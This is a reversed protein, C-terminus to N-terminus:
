FYVQEHIIKYNHPNFELLHFFGDWFLGFMWGSINHIRVLRFCATGRAYLNYVQVRLMAM